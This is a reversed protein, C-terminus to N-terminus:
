LTGNVIRFFVVYLIYLTQMKQWPLSYLFFCYGLGFCLVVDKCIQSVFSQKLGLNFSMM